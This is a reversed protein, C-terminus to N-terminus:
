SAHAFPYIDIVYMMWTYKDAGGIDSYISPLVAGYLYLPIQSGVWLFSMAMMTMWFRFTKKHFVNPNDLELDLGSDGEVDVNEIRETKGIKDPTQHEKTDM